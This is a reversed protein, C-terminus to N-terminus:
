EVEEESKWCLSGNSVKLAVVERTLKEGEDSSKNWRERTKKKKNKNHNSSHYKSNRTERLQINMINILIM